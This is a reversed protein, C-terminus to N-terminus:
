IFLEVRNMCIVAHTDQKMEQSTDCHVSRVVGEEEEFILDFNCRLKLKWIGCTGDAALNGGKSCRIM